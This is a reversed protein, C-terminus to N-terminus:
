NQKQLNIRFLYNCLYVLIHILVDVVMCCQFNPVITCVLDKHLCLFIFSSNLLLKLFQIKFNILYQKALLTENVLFYKKLMQIGPQLIYLSLLYLRARLFSVSQLPFCVLFGLFWFIFVCFILMCHSSHELPSLCLVNHSCVPLTFLVLEGLLSIQCRRLDIKKNNKFTQKSFLCFAASFFPLSYPGNTVSSARKGLGAVQSQRWVQM